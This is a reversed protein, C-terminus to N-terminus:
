RELDDVVHVLPYTEGKKLAQLGKEIADQEANTPKESPLSYLFYHRLAERLLESRTRSERRRLQELQKLMKEPLTISIQKYSTQM